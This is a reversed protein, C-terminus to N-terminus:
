YDAVNCQMYQMSFNVVICANRVVFHCNQTFFPGPTVLNPGQNPQNIITLGYVLQGKGLNSCELSPVQQSKPYRCKKLCNISLQGSHHKQHNFDAM